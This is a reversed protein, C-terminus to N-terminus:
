ILGEGLLDSMTFKIADEFGYSRCISVGKEPNDEIKEAEERSIKEISLIKNNFFVKFHDNM